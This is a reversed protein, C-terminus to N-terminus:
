RVQHILFIMYTVYFSIIFRTYLLHAKTKLVKIQFFIIVNLNTPLKITYNLRWLRFYKDFNYSYM